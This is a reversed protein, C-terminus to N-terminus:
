RESGHLRPFLRRTNDALSGVIPGTGDLMKSAMEAVAEPTFPYDGTGNLVLNVVARTTDFLFELMPRPRDFSTQEWCAPSTPHLFVRAQRRDLADFIPEYAPDGLYVGDVNTLLTVGDTELQDYCYEIEAISGEIDPAPLTAFLGFRGPHDVVARRGEENVERALLRANAGDGFHVGPSSISLLSTSIGLRNMVAIHEVASWEPLQSFGDPKTHGADRAAGRYGDPIFHAHVDIHERRKSRDLSSMLPSYTLQAFEVARM